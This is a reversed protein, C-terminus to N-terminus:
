PTPDPTPSLGPTPTTTPTTTPTATPTPTPTTTPNPTPTPSPTATPTVGSTPSPTATPSAGTTPSSASTAGPSAASTATAFDPATTATAPSTPGPISIIGQSFVLWTTISVVVLGVLCTLVTLRSIKRGSPQPVAPPPVAISSDAPIPTAVNPMQSSQHQNEPSSVFPQLQPQNQSTNILTAQSSSDLVPPVYTSGSSQISPTRVYTSEGSQGPAPVVYTPQSSQGLPPVVYTSESSQDPPTVTYSSSQSSTSQPPIAYFPATIKPFSQYVQPIQSAQELANAFAQVNAFRRQPEKALATLVVGELDPSITPVKARLSPPPAHLHQGYLEPTSGRFPRHGSLWEYVVIGLAYQDSAPRSKGLIQEPAMYPVTGAMEQTALSGSSHAPLVLGFDSLFVENNRGLLMNEPKVDRHILKQQHAYYLAAAVQKVYPIIIGTSLRSAHPHRQRLSGNPAYDMVLFPIGEQVGFDLVRVINPHVLSAITQAEMRFEEMSSGVLRVQLLKIAAQTKLHIHEGLYVDAFGGQGLLRVLRYNGLQQGIYDAMKLHEGPFDVLEEIAYSFGISATVESVISASVRENKYGTLDWRWPSRLPGGFQM